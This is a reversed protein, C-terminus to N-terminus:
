GDKDGKQFEPIRRMIKFLQNETVGLFRAAETQSSTAALAFRILADRFINKYNNFLPFGYFKGQAINTASIELKAGILEELSVNHLM